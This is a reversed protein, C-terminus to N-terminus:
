QCGSPFPPPSGTDYVSVAGIANDAKPNAISLTPICPNSTGNVDDNSSYTVGSYTQLYPFYGTAPPTVEFYAATAPVNSIKFFGASGTTPNTITTSSTGVVSGTTSRLTVLAGNVGTVTSADQVYGCVTTVGAGVKDGCVDTGGSGQGGNNGGGGGGGGCGVVALVAAAGLTLALNQKWVGPGFVARRNM